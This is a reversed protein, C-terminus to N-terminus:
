SGKGRDRAHGTAMRRLRGLTVLLLAGTVGAGIAAEALAVDPAGLRVWTLSLLLGLAIFLLVSRFLGQGFLLQWAVGVLTLALLGDFILLSARIVEAM